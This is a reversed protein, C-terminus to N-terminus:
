KTTKAKLTANLEVINLNLQHIAEVFKEIQVDSKDARKELTDIRLQNKTNDQQLTQINRYHTGSYRELEGVKIYATTVAILFACIIAIGKLWGGVNSGQEFISKFRDKM